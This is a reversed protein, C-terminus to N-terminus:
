APTAVVASPVWGSVRTGRGEESDFRFEGGLSEVRTRMTRLGLHGANSARAREDPSSGVGDDRVEFLVRGDHATLRVQVRSARAHAAVNELAQHLLRFLAARGPGNLDRDVEDEAEYAVVWGWRQGFRELLNRVPVTLGRDLESM